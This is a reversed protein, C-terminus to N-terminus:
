WRTLVFRRAPVSWQVVECTDAVFNFANTAWGLPAELDVEMDVGDHASEWEQEEELSANVRDRLVTLCSLHFWSGLCKSHGKVETEMYYTWEGKQENYRALNARTMPQFSAEHVEQPRGKWPHHHQEAGEEFHKLFYLFLFGVLTEPLSAMDEETAFTFFVGLEFEKQKSIKASHKKIFAKPDNNCDAFLKFVAGKKGEDWMKRVAESVKYEGKANPEM